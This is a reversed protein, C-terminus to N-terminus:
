PKTVRQKTSLLVVPFPNSRSGLGDNGLSAHYIEYSSPLVEYLLLQIFGIDPQKLLLM